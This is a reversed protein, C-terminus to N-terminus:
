PGGDGGEGPTVTLVTLYRGEPFSDRVPHDPGAGRREAIRRQGGEEHLLSRLLERFDRASVHSSCSATVLVGDRELRGLALRNIRRYAELGRARTAKSPAMNPPDCVILDYRGREAELFAEVDERVLRWRPDAPDLDNRALNDAAAAVAPGAREVMTVSRAGGLAASVAFGGTYGFLDLVRKGEARERLRRRNERQDLFLGTKHGRLLDAGLRLGYEQVEVVDEVPPGWITRATGAGSRGPRLLVSRLGPLGEALAQLLAPRFRGVAKTDPRLVVVDGYLDAVVGPMGDGEGHILRYASVRERDVVRARLDLAEAVRRRFLAEDLVEGPETTWIRLALPSDADYLGSAIPRGARDLVEVVSGTTLGAPAAVAEDFLWPHGGRVARELPKRLRVQTTSM